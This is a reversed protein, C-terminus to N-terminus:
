FHTFLSPAPRARLSVSRFPAFFNPIFAPHIVESTEAKLRWFLCSYIHVIGCAQPFFIKLHLSLPFHAPDVTFNKKEMTKRRIMDKMERVIKMTDKNMGAFHAQVDQYFCKSGASL